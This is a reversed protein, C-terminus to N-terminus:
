YWLSDSTFLIYKGGQEASTQAWPSGYPYPTHVLVTGAWVWYPTAAVCIQSTTQCYSFYALNDAGSIENPM